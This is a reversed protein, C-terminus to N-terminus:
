WSIAPGSPSRRSTCISRAIAASGRRASISRTNTSRRAAALAGARDAGAVSQRVAGTGEAVPAASVPDFDRFVIGRGHQRRRDQRRARDAAGSQALRQPHGRQGVPVPRRHEAASSMCCCEMCLRRVCRRPISSCPASRGITLIRQRWAKLTAAPACSTQPPSKWRGASISARMAFASACATSAASMTMSRASTNRTAAGPDPATEAIGTELRRGIQGPLWPQGQAGRGMMVADAGSMELATSLRRSRPSIATSSWRFKLRMASRACRAGIPRARTFSAARAAM